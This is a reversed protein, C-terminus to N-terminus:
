EFPKASAALLVAILNWNDVSQYINGTTLSIGISLVLLISIRSAHVKNKFLNIFCLSLNLVIVLYILLGLIGMSMLIEFIINHPYSGTSNLIFKAGFVPSEMFMDWAEQYLFNREEKEGSKINEAFSTLRVFAGVEFQVKSAAYAVSAILMLSVAVIRFYNRFNIKTRKLALAFILLLGLISFILPGRSTGLILNFLGIFLGIISLMRIMKPLIPSKIFIIACSLLFLYGGYLSYSIPNVVLKDNDESTIVARELLIEPTIAWGNEKLYFVSLLINSVLLTYLSLIVLKKQDTYKFAFFIALIPILISGLYYAYIETLTNEHFVGRILTDYVIRLLYVLLFVLLPLTSRKLTVKGMSLAYVIVIVSLMLCFARYAINVPTSSLSLFVSTIASIPYAFCLLVVVYTILNGIKKQTVM